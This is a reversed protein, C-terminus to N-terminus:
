FSGILTVRGFSGAGYAAPMLMTHGMGFGVADDGTPVSVAGMVGAHVGGQQVLAVTGHAVIDGGGYAESGNRLMRYYAWSAGASFRDYSWDGGAIVGEYNGGFYM